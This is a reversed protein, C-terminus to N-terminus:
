LHLKALDATQVYLIALCIWGQKMLLHYSIVGGVVFPFFRKHLIEPSAHPAINYATFTVIVCVSFSFGYQYSAYVSPSRFVWWRGCM